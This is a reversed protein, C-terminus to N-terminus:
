ISVPISYPQLSALHVFSNSVAIELVVSQSCLYVHLLSGPHGPLTKMSECDATDGGLQL